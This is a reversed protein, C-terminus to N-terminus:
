EKRFVLFPLHFPSPSVKSILWLNCSVLNASSCKKKIKKQEREKNLAALSILLVLFGPIVVPKRRKSVRKRQRTEGILFGSKQWHPKRAPDRMQSQCNGDPRKGGVANFFSLELSRSNLPLSFSLSLSLTLLYSRSPPLSPSPPFSFLQKGFVRGLTCMLLMPRIRLSRDARKACM